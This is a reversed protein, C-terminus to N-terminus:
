IPSAHTQLEKLVDAASLNGIAFDDLTVKVGLDKEIQSAYASGLGWGSSESIVVLHWEVGPGKPMRAPTSSSAAAPLTAPSAPTPAAAPACGNMMFLVFWLVLLTRLMKANPM